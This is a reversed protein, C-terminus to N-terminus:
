KNGDKIIEYMEKIAEILVGVLNGYAVTKIGNVEEVVEPCYKEVDQAIVGMYDKEDNLIDSRKYIVGSISLVKNLSDSIPRINKKIKIDSFAAIDNECILGQVNKGNMLSGNGVYLAPVKNNGLLGDMSYEKNISVQKDLVYASNYEINNKWVNSSENIRYDFNINEEILNSTLVNLEQIKDSVNSTILDNIKSEFVDIKDDFDKSRVYDDLSLPVSINSYIDTKNDNRYINGEELLIDGKLRLAFDSLPLCGVGISSEICLSNAVDNNLNKISSGINVSSYIDMTKNFGIGLGVYENNNKEGMITVRDRGLGNYNNDLVFSKTYILDNSEDYLVIHRSSLSGKNIVGNIEIKNNLNNLFVEGNLFLLLNESVILNDLVRNVRVYMEGQKYYEIGNKDVKFDLVNVLYFSEYNENLFLDIIKNPKKLYIKNDNFCIIDLVNEIILVQNVLLEGLKNRKELKNNQYTYINNGSYGGILINNLTVKDNNDFVFNINNDKIYILVSNEIKINNVDYDILKYSNNNLLKFLNNNILLYSSNESCFIENIKIKEDPKFDLNNKERLDIISDELIVKKDLYFLENNLSFLGTLNNNKKYEEFNEHFSLLDINKLMINDCKINSEVNLQINSSIDNIMNINSNSISMYSYNAYLKITGEDYSNLLNITPITNNINNDKVIITGNTNSTNILLSGNELELSGDIKNKEWVIDNNSFYPYIYKEPIIDNENLILIKQNKYSLLGDTVNVNGKLNINENIINKVYLDELNLNINNYSLKSIKETEFTVEDKNLNLKLSNTTHILKLNVESDNINEILIADKSISKIESM